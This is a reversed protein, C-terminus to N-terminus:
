FLELKFRSYNVDEPLVVKWALRWVERALM